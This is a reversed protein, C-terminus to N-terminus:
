ERRRLCAGAIVRVCKRRGAPERRGRAAFRFVSEAKKREGRPLPSRWFSAAQREEQFASKNERNAWAPGREAFRAWKRELGRLRGGPRKGCRSASGTQSGAFLADRQSVCRLTPRDM